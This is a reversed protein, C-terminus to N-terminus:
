TPDKGLALNQEVPGRKTKKKLGLHYLSSNTKPSPLQIRQPRYSKNGSSAGLAM